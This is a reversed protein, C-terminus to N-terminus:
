LRSLVIYTQGHQVSLLLVKDGVALPRTIIAAGGGGGGSQGWVACLTGNVDQFFGAGSVDIVKERVEDTVILAEEHIAAQHVDLVVELPSVSTVTGVAMDTLQAADLQDRNIKQLADLLTM